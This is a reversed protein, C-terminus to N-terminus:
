LGVNSEDRRTKESRYKSRNYVSMIFVGDGEFVIDLNTKLYELFIAKEEESMSDMNNYYYDCITRIMDTQKLPFTKYFINKAKEKREM